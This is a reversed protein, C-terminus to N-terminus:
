GWRGVVFVASLFQARTGAPSRCGRYGGHLTDVWRAVGESWGILYPVTWRAGVWRGVFRCVACGACRRACRFSDWHVWAHASSAVTRAGSTDKTKEGTRVRLVRFQAAVPSLHSARHSLVISAVYRGVIVDLIETPAFLSFSVSSRSMIPVMSRCDVPSLPSARHSVVTGASSAVYRATLM